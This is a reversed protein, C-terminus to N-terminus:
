MVDNEFNSFTIFDLNQRILFRKENSKIRNRKSKENKALERQEARRELESGKTAIKIPIEIEITEKGAM